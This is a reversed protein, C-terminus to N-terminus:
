SARQGQNPLDDLMNEVVSGSLGPGPHFISDQRFRRDDLDGDPM